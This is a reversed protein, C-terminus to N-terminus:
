RQLQSRSTGIPSILSPSSVEFSKVAETFQATLLSCQCGRTVHVM